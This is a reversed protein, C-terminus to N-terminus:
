HTQMSCKVEHSATPVSAHRSARLGILSGMFAANCSCCLLRIRMVEKRQNTESRLDTQAGLKHQMLRINISSCLANSQGMGIQAKCECRRDPRPVHTQQASSTIPSESHMAQHDALHQLTASCSVPLLWITVAPNCCKTHM